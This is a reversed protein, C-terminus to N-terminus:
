GEEFITGSLIRQTEIIAARDYVFPDDGLAAGRDFLTEIDCLYCHRRLKPSQHVSLKQVVGMSVLRRCEEITLDRWGQSRYFAMWRDHELDALACVIPYEKRLTQLESRSTSSLPHPRLLEDASKPGIGIAEHWRKNSLRTPSFTGDDAICRRPDIGVSWLRYPIHRTCTRNSLKKIEFENYENLTDEYPMRVKTGRGRDPRKRPDNWVEDYAANMAISYHEWPAVIINQFSFVENTKGFPTVAFFEKKDSAMRIAAKFTEPANILPLVMPRRETDPDVLTGALMMEDFLRRMSLAVNLNLQDDGMTVLAYVRADRPISKVAEDFKSSFAEAEILDVVPNGAADLEAMMEPCTSSLREAISPAKRDLGIIHLSVGRIRGMWYATKLAEIGNRGLGAVIVYLKQLTAPQKKAVPDLVSFLPYKTMVGFIREQTHSVLRVEVQSRAAYALDDEPSLEESANRAALSDFILEDDQNEHTCYVSFRRAYAKAQDEDGNAARAADESIREILAATEEINEEHADSFAIAHVHEFRDLKRVTSTLSSSSFVVDGHAEERLLQIVSSQDDKVQDTVRCFIVLPRLRADPEEDFSAAELRHKFIDRALAVQNENIGSFVYATKRNHALIRYKFSQTMKRLSNLATTVVVLPTVIALLSLISSYTVAVGSLGISDLTEHAIQTADATPAQISVTQMVAYLSTFFGELGVVADGQSVSYPLLFAVLDAGLIILMTKRFAFSWGDRRVGRIFGVIACISAILMM